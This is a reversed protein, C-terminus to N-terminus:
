PADTRMFTIVTGAPFTHMTPEGNHDRGFVTVSGDDNRTHNEVACFGPPPNTM